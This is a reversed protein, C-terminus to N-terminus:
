DYAYTPITQSFTLRGSVSEAIGFQFRLLFCVFGMFTKNNIMAADHRRLHRPGLFGDDKLVDEPGFTREIEVPIKIKDTPDGVAQRLPIPLLRGM